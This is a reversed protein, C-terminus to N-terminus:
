VTFTSEEPLAAIDATATLTTAIHRQAMVSIGTLQVGKGFAASTLQSFRLGEAMGTVPASVIVSDTDRDIVGTCGQCIVYSQGFLVKRTASSDTSYWFGFGNAGPLSWPSGSESVRFEYHRNEWTFGLRFVFGSVEDPYGRDPLDRLKVAWSLTSGDSSLTSSVIDLADNSPMSTGVGYIDLGTADGAPDSWSLAAAQAPVGGLAVAGIATALLVSRLLNPKMQNPKM